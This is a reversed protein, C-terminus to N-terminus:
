GGDYALATPQGSLVLTSSPAQDGSVTARPYINVTQTYKSAIWVSTGDTAIGTGEAIGTSWGFSRKPAANGSATGDFVSVAYSSADVTCIEIFPTASAPGSDGSEGSGGITHVVYFYPTNNTLFKDTFSTGSATGA